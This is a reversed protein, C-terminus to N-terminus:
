YTSDLTKDALEIARRSHFLGLYYAGEINRLSTCLLEAALSHLESIEQDLLMSCIFGYVATSSSEAGLSLIFDNFGYRNIRGLLRKAEQFRGKLILEKFYPKDRQEIM